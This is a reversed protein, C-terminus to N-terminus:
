WLSSVISTANVTPLSTLTGDHECLEKSQWMNYQMNDYMKYCKDGFLSWSPPCNYGSSLFSIRIAHIQSVFPNPCIEHQCYHAYM